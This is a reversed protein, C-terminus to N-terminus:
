ARQDEVHADAVNLTPQALALSAITRGRKLPKFNEKTTDWDAEPEM